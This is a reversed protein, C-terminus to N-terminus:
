LNGFKWVFLSTHTEYSKSLVRIAESKEQKTSQHQSPRLFTEFDIIGMMDNAKQLSIFNIRAAPSHTGKVFTRFSRATQAPQRGKRIDIFKTYPTYPSLNVIQPLVLKPKPSKPSTDAHSSPLESM